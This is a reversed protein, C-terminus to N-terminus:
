SYKSLIEKYLAKRDNIVTYAKKLEIIGSDGFEVLETWASQIDQDYKVLTNWKAELEEDAASIVSESSSANIDRPSATSGKSHEIAALNGPANAESQRKLITAIRSHWEAAEKLLSRM